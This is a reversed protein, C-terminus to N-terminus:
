VGADLPVIDPRNASPDDATGVNTVGPMNSRPVRPDRVRGKDDATMDLPEFGSQVRSHERCLGTIREITPAAFLVHNRIYDAEANQKAYLEWFDKPCNPTIAFGSIIMFTPMQGHALRPGRAVFREGTRRNVNITKPGQPTMESESNPKFLELVLGTPFKCALFVVDGTRAGQRKVTEDNTAMPPPVKPDPSAM